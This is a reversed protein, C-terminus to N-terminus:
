RSPRFTNLDSFLGGWLEEDSKVVPKRTRPHDNGGLTSLALDMDGGRDVITTRRRTEASKEIQEDAASLRERLEATEAKQADVTKTLTEVVTNIADLKALIAALAADTTPAEAAVPAAEEAKAVPAAEVAPEPAPPAAAEVVEESKTLGALDGSVAEELKGKRMDTDETTAARAAAEIKFVQEPLMKALSTIYKRFSALMADVKAVREERTGEAEGSNLLTWVSDALGGVALNVSPAFGAMGVGDAYAKVVSEDSFEKLPHSIAVALADGLQVFGRAEADASIPVVVVGEAERACSVDIGESKLIPLLAEAADKRIFYATIAVEGKSLSFFSQLKDGLKSVPTEDDSKLIKFPARNAGHRVLSVMEIDTDLLENAVVKVKM